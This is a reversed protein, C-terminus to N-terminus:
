IFICWRVGFKDVIHANLPSYDCTELPSLVTAGDKLANYIKQVVAEKGTGFHLCFMMTNGTEPRNGMQNEEALESLALIQGYVDLEAHLILGDSNPYCCLVKADFADRYFELAKDSEKVFVQMMSRYM